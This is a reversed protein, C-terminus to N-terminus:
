GEGPLESLLTARNAPAGEKWTFLGKTIVKVTIAAQKLSYLYLSASHEEPLSTLTWQEDRLAFFSLTLEIEEFYRGLFGAFINKLM